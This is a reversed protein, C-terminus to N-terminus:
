KAFCDKQQEKCNKDGFGLVEVTLISPKLGGDAAAAARGASTAAAAVEEASKSNSTAGASSLAAAISGVSAVPVGSSSGSASISSANLVSQANIVINGSSRIGAEGADITGAPAFLYIDGAKPAELPGQGDPDSTLTQIGSGATSAPIVVEVGIQNGEADLIPRRVPAPTSQSTRAGRGADINGQSSFILIDGGQATIVRGQNISFDGSLVSRLRGGANTTAGITAQSQSTLGVIIDGGPAWLDIDSGGVTQISTLFSLIDGGSVSSPEVAKAVVQNMADSLVIPNLGTPLAGKSRRQVYDAFVRPYRSDLGVFQQYVQGGPAAALDALSTVSTLKSGDAEANLLAYLAVAAAADSTTGLPLKAARLADKYASLARPAKEDLSIFRAYAQNGAALTAVDDAALVVDASAEVGLQRYFDLIDGSRQNLTILEAYVGEFQALDIDGRVGAVVTVRASDSDPLQANAANATAAIGGVGTASGPFTISAAGIDVNRGAQLLLRGPGRIEIGGGAGVRRVDGTEARIETVDTDNLNQLRLTPQVIDLGAHLRSVAPLFLLATQTYDISGDLAQIDFAYQPEGAALGVTGYPLSYDRSVIRGARANRLNDVTSIDNGPNSSATASPIASAFNRVPTVVADPGLDSVDISYDSVSGNALVVVTARASPFTTVVDRTSGSIDGDFAVLAL